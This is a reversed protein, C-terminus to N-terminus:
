HLDIYDSIASISMESRLEIVTGALARTHRAKESSPIFPLKEMVFVGCNHCRIRHM